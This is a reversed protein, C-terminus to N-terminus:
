STAYRRRHRRISICFLLFRFAARLLFSSFISAHFDIFAYRREQCYFPTPTFSVHFHSFCHRSIDSAIPLSIHSFDDFSSIHLSIAFAIHLFPTIASSSLQRRSFLFPTAFRRFAAASLRAFIADFRPPTAADARRRPTASFSLFGRRLPTAQCRCDIMAAFHRLVPTKFVFAADVIAAPPAADRAIAYGPPRDDAYRFRCHRRQSAHFLPSFDAPL